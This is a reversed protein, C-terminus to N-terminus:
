RPTTSRQRWAQLSILLVSAAVSAVGVMNDSLLPVIQLFSEPSAQEVYRALELMQDPSIRMADEPGISLHRYDGRQLFLGFAGAAITVLGLPGVPRLLCELLRTRLPATASRYVDAILEPVRQLAAMGGRRPAGPNSPTPLNDFEDSM